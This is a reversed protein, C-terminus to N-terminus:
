RSSEGVYVSVEAVGGYACRDSVPSLAAWGLIRQAHNRLVLRSHALHSADWDEWEPAETEFTAAGTALSEEFITRVRPWDAAAMRSVSM